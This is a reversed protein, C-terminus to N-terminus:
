KPILFLTIDGKKRPLQQESESTTRENVMKSPKIINEPQNTFLDEVKNDYNFHLKSTSQFRIKKEPPLVFLSDDRVSM